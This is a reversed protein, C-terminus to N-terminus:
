ALDDPSFSGYSVTQFVISSAKDSSVITELRKIEDESVDRKRKPLALLGKMEKSNNSKRGLFEELLSISHNYAAITAEADQGDTDLRVAEQAFQLAERLVRKSTRVPHMSSPNLTLPAVSM